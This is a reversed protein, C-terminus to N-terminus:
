PGFAGLARAVFGIFVNRCEEVRHAKQEIIPKEERPERVQHPSETGHGFQAGVQHAPPAPM